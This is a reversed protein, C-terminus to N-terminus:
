ILKRKTEYLIYLDSEKIRFGTGHNRVAGSEKLHMRIDLCIRSEEFAQIFGNESPDELLYAEGFCFEERNNEGMRSDAIVFLARDLKSLLIAMLRYISWTAIIDEGHALELINAHRDVTVRFGSPHSRYPYISHYLAMRKDKESYYGYKEVVEKQRYKWAGRNFTFLTILSGADRRTTKLEIRGGIDPIQLNDEGLGFVQEFTHGVGTPGKRLTPMYGM